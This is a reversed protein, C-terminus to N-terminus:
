LQQQGRSTGSSLGIGECIKGNNYWAIKPEMLKAAVWRATRTHTSDTELDGFPKQTRDKRPGNRIPFKELKDEVVNSEQVERGQNEPSNRPFSTSGQALAQFIVLQDQLFEDVVGGTNIEEALSKVVTKAVEDSLQAPSKGKRKGSYLIDRGWRLTTSKAVLLVYIRAEHRSEETTLFNPEVAPFTKGLRERLTAELEAHLHSPTIITVDISTIEFKGSESEPRPLEGSLRLVDGFSIPQIKFWLSGRLISGLSWGRTDLRREVHVGFWSELAPLLVQDLYEFSPSFSVNTGGSLTLEVPEGGENGAYLLFPFVAQFVLVASAAPSECSITINREVLDGPGRNPRFELTKSGVELCILETTSIVSM